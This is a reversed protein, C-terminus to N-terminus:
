AFEKKVGLRAELKKVQEETFQLRESVESISSGSQVFKVAAEIVGRAEVNDFLIDIGTRMM